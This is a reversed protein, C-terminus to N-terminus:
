WRFRLFGSRRLASPCFSRRIRTATAGRCGFIQQQNGGAFTCPDKMTIRRALTPAGITRMKETLDDVMEHKIWAIAAGQERGGACAMEARGHVARRIEPAGPLFRFQWRGEGFNGLALGSTADLVGEPQRRPM